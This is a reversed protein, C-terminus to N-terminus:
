VRPGAATLLYTLLYTLLGVLLYIFLNRNTCCIKYGLDDSLRQLLEYARYFLIAHEELSCLVSGMEAILWDGLKTM